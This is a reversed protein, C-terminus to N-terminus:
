HYYPLCFGCLTHSTRAPPRAVWAPVWDWRDPERMNRVRRCNACQRVFGNNDMYTASVPDHSKKTDHGAEIITSNVVLIGEAHGLPYLTMLYRRFLEPSSCDYEHQV